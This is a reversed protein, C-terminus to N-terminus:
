RLLWDKLQSMRTRGDPEGLDAAKQYWRFAETADPSANASNLDAFSIPDFSQGLALAAKASGNEAETRLIERAALVDGAQLLSRAREFPSPPQDAVARATNPDLAATRMEGAEVSAAEAVRVEFAVRDSLPTRADEGLLQAELTFDGSYSKPATLKLSEARGASLLWSGNGTDVGASLKVGKPLGDIRVFRDSDAAPVSLALPISEDAQGTVPSAGMLSIDSAKEAANDSTSAAKNEPETLAATQAPERVSSDAGNVADGPANATGDAASGTGQATAVLSREESGDGLRTDDKSDLTTARTTDQAAPEQAASEQTAADSLRAATPKQSAGFDQQTVFSNFVFVAAVGAVAIGGILGLGAAGLLKGSAESNNAGLDIPPNYSEARTHPTEPHHPAPGGEGAYASADARTDATGGASARDPEAASLTASPEPQQTGSIWADDSLDEDDDPGAYIDDRSYRQGAGSGQPAADDEADNGIHDYLYSLVAETTEEDIATGPQQEDETYADDYGSDPATPPADQGAWQLIPGSGETGPHNESATRDHPEGDTDDDGYVSRLASQVADALPDGPKGGAFANSDHGSRGTSVDASRGTDFIGNDPAQTDPAKKAQDDLTADNPLDFPFDTEDRAFPSGDDLKASNLRTQSAAASRTEAKAGRAMEFTETPSAFDPESSAFLARLDLTEEQEEDDADPKATTQAAAADSEKADSATGAPKKTDDPQEPAAAVDDGSAAEMKKEAPAADKDAKGEGEGGGADAKEAASSIKSPGGAKAEEQSAADKQKAATEATESSTEPAQRDPGGQPAAPTEGSPKSSTSSSM